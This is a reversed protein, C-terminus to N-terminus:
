IIFDQLNLKNWDSFNTIGILQLDEHTNITLEQAENSHLCVMVRGNKTYCAKVCDQEKAVNFLGRRISTLDEFIIVKSKGKLAKKKRAIEVKKAKKSLRVIM